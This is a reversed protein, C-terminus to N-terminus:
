FFTNKAASLVHTEEGDNWKLYLTVDGCRELIDQPTIGESEKLKLSCACEVGSRM